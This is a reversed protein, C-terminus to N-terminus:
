FPKFLLLLSALSPILSDSTSSVSLINVQFVLLSPLFPRPPTVSTQADRLSLIKFTYSTFIGHHSERARVLTYITYTYTFTYLKSPHLQRHHWRQNPPLSNNLLSYPHILDIFFVNIRIDRGPDLGGSPYWPLCRKLIAFAVMKEKLHQISWIIWCYRKPKDSIIKLHDCCLM